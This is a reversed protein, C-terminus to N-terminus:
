AAATQSFPVSDGSFDVIEIVQAPITEAHPKFILRGSDPLEIDSESLYYADTPGVVVSEGRRLRNAIEQTGIPSPVSGESVFGREIGPVFAMFLYKILEQSFDLGDPYHKM